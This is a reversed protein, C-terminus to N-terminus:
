RQQAVTSIEGKAKMVIQGVDFSLEKILVMKRVYPSVSLGTRDNRRSGYQIRTKEMMLKM